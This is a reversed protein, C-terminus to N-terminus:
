SAVRHIVITLALGVVAFLMAYVLAYQAKDQWNGGRKAASRYGIAAGLALAILVIM